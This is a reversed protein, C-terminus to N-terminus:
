PKWRFFNNKGGWGSNETFILYEGNKCQFARLGMAADEWATSGAVEPGVSLIEVMKGTKADYVHVEGFMYAYFVYDGALQMGMYGAYPYLHTEYMFFEAFAPDYPTVANIKWTATRNGKSWDDYRALVYRPASTDGEGTRRQAPYFAILIDRDADYDMRCAMGWANTTDGEEPFRIDEFPGYLPVGHDNFGQFPFRRMFSGGTTPSGIWIDGRSDVCLSTIWGANPELKTVEDPSEEGDGNADIWLTGNTRIAGFPIALEGEYRFMYVDGVNGQGSTFMMLRGDIRRVIAQSSHARELQPGGFRRHDWNYGVYTQESGPQTKSLDLRIHNYTGYIDAGDSAPDVDYTCCFMLSNLKWGLKGAPTFMRLDTGQWGGGVYLNGTADVGLGNIGAFRATGGAAPDHVLGPHKGAYIGGKEGFTRALTPKSDLKDYFRVNLDPLNVGVLLQDKAADYALANPNIVDTIERGTFKGDVTYCKVAAMTTPETDMSPRQIIWLDGRKDFAMVGPNDFAFNRDVLEEAESTFDGVAVGGCNVALVRDGDADLLELGCIGPGGYTGFHFVVNGNDDAKYGPLDTVFATLVGGAAEAVHIQTGDLNVRHHRPDTNEPRKVFEALHCRITYVAGPTQNPFTYKVGEGARQSQYIAAPAFSKDSDAPVAVPAPTLVIRNNPATAQQFTKVPELSVVRIVHDRKDAVFLEKGNSAMGSVVSHNTATDLLNVSLTITRRAYDNAPDLETINGVTAVYLRKGDGTIGGDATQPTGIPLGRLVKGDRYSTVPQGAEDWYASTYCTGDAAVWMASLTNSVHGDEMRAGFSNGVWSTKYRMHPDGIQISDVYATMAKDPSASACFVGVRLPGELTFPGGSVNSIATWLRGDRSKYVAFNNDMRVLRLWIPDGEGPGENALGIGGGLIRPRDNVPNAKGAPVRTRWALSNKEGDYFVCAMASDGDEGAAPRIMIGAVSGAYGDVYTLRVRIEFDGAPRDIYVFGCHDVETPDGSGKVNVGSGYGDLTLLTKAANWDYTGGGNGVEAFKWALTQEWAPAAPTAPEAAVLSSCGGALCVAAVAWGMVGSRLIHKMPHEMDM